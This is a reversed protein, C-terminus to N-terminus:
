RKPQVLPTRPQVDGWLVDISNYFLGDVLQTMGKIQAMARLVGADHMVAAIFFIDVAFGIM